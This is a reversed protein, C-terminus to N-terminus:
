APETVGLGPQPALLAVDEKLTGSVVPRFRSARYPVVKGAWKGVPRQIEFLHVGLYEETPLGPVTSKHFEVLQVTYSRGKVPMVGRPTFAPLGPLRVPEVSDDICICKAGPRVWSLDTPENM